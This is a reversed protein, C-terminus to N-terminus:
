DDDEGSDEAVLRKYEKYNEKLVSECGKKFDNFSLWDPLDNRNVAARVYSDFSDVTESSYIMVTRPGYAVKRVVAAIGEERFNEALMASHDIEQMQLGKETTIFNPLM